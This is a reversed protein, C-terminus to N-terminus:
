GSTSGEHTHLGLRDITSAVGARGPPCPSGCAENKSLLQGCHFPFSKFISWTCHSVGTIGAGRSASILLISAPPWSPLDKM